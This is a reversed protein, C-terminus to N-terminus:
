EEAENLFVCCCRHGTSTCAGPASSLAFAIFAVSSPVGVPNGGVYLLTEQLRRGKRGKWADIRARDAACRPKRSIAANVPASSDGVPPM